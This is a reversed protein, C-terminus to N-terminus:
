AYLYYFEDQREHEGGPMGQWSSDVKLLTEFQGHHARDRFTLKETVIGAPQDSAWLELSVFDFAKRRYWQHLRHINEFTTHTHSCGCLHRRVWVFAGAQLETLQEGAHVAM